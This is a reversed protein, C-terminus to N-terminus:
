TSSRFPRLSNSTRPKFLGDLSQWDPLKQPWNHVYVLCKKIWSRQFSPDLLSMMELFFNCVNGWSAPFGFVVFRFFSDFTIGCGLIRNITGLDSADRLRSSALFICFLLREYFLMYCSFLTKAGPVKTTLAPLWVKTIYSDLFFSNVILFGSRASSKVSTSRWVSRSLYASRWAFVM